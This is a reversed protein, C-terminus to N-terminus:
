RAAGTMSLAQTLAAPLAADFWTADSARLAILRLTEDATLSPRLGAAVEAAVLPAHMLPANADNMVTPPPLRRARLGDTGHPLAEFRRAADQAASQLRTAPAALPLEGGQDNIAIPRLGAAHLAHGLHAALEPRLLVIEGAARAVSKESIGDDEIGAESLRAVIRARAAKAGQAWARCGVLPWWIPAETELSLALARDNRDAMFLLAVAAGPARVLAQVQDLAGADGASRVAAMLSRVQDWGPDAPADLLDSWKAAFRTLRDERTTHPQPRAAWVFPRMVGRRDNQGQIFWLGEDQGLWGFLDVRGGTETQSTRAPQDLNVAQLRTVGHGLHRFPGAEDSTWDYRGVSLRQTFHGAALRINVRGDAGALALAQSILSVHGALRLDGSFPLGIQSTVNAVRLLLAGNNGPVHGRWGELLKLSIERDQSLTTGDPDLLRPRLAPWLGTLDLSAGSSPDSLGFHVLGPLGDTRLALVCQDNEIVAQVVTEGARVSLHWGRPLGSTAVRLTGPATEVMSFQASSPLVILRARALVANDEVWEAVRGGLTRPLSSLRLRAGLSRLSADGEAGLVQPDGLFVPAGAFTTLSSLTRGFVALQPTPSDADAGTAITLNQGDVRVCGRGSLCWLRGDPAQASAGIEVGADADLTSEPGAILWVQAARTQGRGSLPALTDPDTVAPDPSRWLSPAEHAAPLGADVVLEGYRSGDVFATLVVAEDPSLALLGSGGTRALRWGAGEPQARFTSGSTAVLRLLQGRAEPLLSSPLIGGDMIRAVGRWIGAADRRLERLVPMTSARATEKTALLAPRVVAEIAPSSMRMPLTQEWGPRNADLWALAAEPLLRNPLVARLHILGLALDSILRAQEDHRLAQPLEALHRRAISPAAVQALSGEAELDSILRLLVRGYTNAEALAADPLGGEAVLTYLFERDGDEAYRVRRGWATLGSAVLWQIYQYDPRRIGLGDFVFDWRLYGGPYATRIHESAWLVFAQASTRSRLGPDIRLPLLRRLAALEDATTNYAHLARGDASALGCRALIDELVQL